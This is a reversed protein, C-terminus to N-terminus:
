KGELGQASGPYRRGKWEVGRKFRYALTSNILLLSLLVAGPFLFNALTPEFGLLGLKTSYSGQREVLFVFLVAAALALGAQGRGLVFVACLVLFLLPVLVDLFAVEALTGAIQDFRGGYLLFLNKTWGQWMARFTRYMRTEVWEAGPLFLLRGGVTKVRRALEVDDLIQGRVAEHGGARVYAERRILMYQGNAAAAPSDPNSVDEFRYLKALRMYVLPIVSKEWWTLTRQGPSISLLDARAGEARQLLTALSGPWHETDADTFLLWEGTSVRAGVTAAHAKGTWGDPLPGAPMTRLSPVEDKLSELIESTRDTSGDDVVIIERLDQQGALSRVARAINAEEDRAPVIVSVRGGLEEAM